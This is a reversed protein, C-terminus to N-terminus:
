LKGALWNGFGSAFGGTAIGTAGGLITGVTDWFGGGTQSKQFALNENFQRKNEALSANFQRTDESFRDKNLEQTGQFQTLGLLQGLAQMKYQEGVNAISTELGSTANASKEFLSNYLNANAGAFGSQAGSEQIAEKASRTQSGIERKGQSLM